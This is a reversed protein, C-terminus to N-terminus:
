RTPRPLFNELLTRCDAGCEPFEALFLAQERCRSQFAGTVKPNGCLVRMSDLSREYIRVREEVPLSLLARQEYRAWWAWVFAMAVVAAAMAVAKAVPRRFETCGHQSLLPM